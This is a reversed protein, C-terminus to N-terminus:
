EAVSVMSPRIVRDGIKYGKRLVNVVTGSEAETNADRAVAMHLNPDFACGADEIQEVGLSALADRFMNLTMTVGKKYQEDATEAEAALELTDLVPLLKDVANAVGLGVSAAKERDTRKRYNDYEAATRLLRDKFANLEDKVKDAEVKLKELEKNHKKSKKDEKEPQPQECGGCEGGCDCEHATTEETMSDKIEESM